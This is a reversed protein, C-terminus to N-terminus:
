VARASTPARSPHGTCFTVAAMPFSRRSTWCGTTRRACARPSWRFRTVPAWHLLDRRGYPLVEALDLLGHDAERLCAAVLPLKFTSCLAFHEHVRTGSYAGTATDLMCVGLRAPGRELAKLPAVADFRHPPQGTAHGTRHLALLAAFLTAHRRNM